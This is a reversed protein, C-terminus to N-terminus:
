LRSLRGHRVLHWLFLYTDVAPDCLIFVRLNFINQGGAKVSRLQRTRM